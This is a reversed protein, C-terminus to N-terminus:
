YKVSHLKVIASRYELLNIVLAKYRGNLEGGLLVSLLQMARGPRIHVHQDNVNVHIGFRCFKYAIRPQVYVHVEM